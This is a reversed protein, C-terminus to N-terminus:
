KVRESEESSQRKKSRRWEEVEIEQTWSGNIWGEGESEVENRDEEMGLTLRLKDEEEECERSIEIWTFVCGVSVLNLSPICLGLTRWTVM